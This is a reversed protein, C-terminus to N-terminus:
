QSLKYSPIVVLLMPSWLLSAYLLSTLTKSWGLRQFTSWNQCVLQLISRLLLSIGVFLLLHLMSLGLWVNVLFILFPRTRLGGRWIFWAYALVSSVHFPSLLFKIPLIWTAWLLILPSVALLPSFDQRQKAYHYVVPIGLLSVATILQYFASGGPPYGFDILFISYDQLGPLLALLMMLALFETQLVDPINALFAKAQKIPM